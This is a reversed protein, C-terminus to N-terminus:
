IQDDRDLGSKVVRSAAFGVAAALGIAIAPSKRVFTKADDLLEEVDKGDLKAALGDITSAATRALDGYSKGVDEDLKAASAEIARSLGGVKEVAKDKGDAAASRASTLAKDKFGLAQDKVAGKADSAAAKAKDATTKDAAIKDATTKNAATQDPATQDLATQALDANMNSGGSAAAPTATTTGAAQTVRATRSGSDSSENAM